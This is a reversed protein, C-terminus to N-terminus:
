AVLKEIREIRKLEAIAENGKNIIAQLYNIIMLNKSNDWQEQQSVLLGLEDASDSITIVQNWLKYYDWDKNPLGIKQLNQSMLNRRIQNIRIKYNPCNFCCEGEGPLECCPSKPLKEYAKIWDDVVTKIRNM